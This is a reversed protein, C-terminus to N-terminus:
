PRSRHGAAAGTTFTWEKALMGGAYSGSMKVRYSTNPLFPTNGYMFVVNRLMRKQEDPLAPSMPDLWVHEIPTSDGNLFLEHETVALGPAYMSIPNASPWGSAPAPPMPGENRGDFATTVGTQGDYPYVVVSTANGRNGPGFDITDCGDAAGYGLIVTAPDLIPIRHWVSDVWMQVAGVPDNLFAMVEGGGSSLFGAARMREGPSAGTFGACGMVEYHPSDTCMPDGGGKNSAYYACHATAAQAITLDLNVCAAGAALRLTNVADLAEIEAAM